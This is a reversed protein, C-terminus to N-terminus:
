PLRWKPCRDPEPLVLKRTPRRSGLRWGSESDYCRTSPTAQRSRTVMSRMEAATKSDRPDTAKFLEPRARVVEHHPAFRHLDPRIQERRGDTTITMPRIPTVTGEGAMVRRKRIQPGAAIDTEARM